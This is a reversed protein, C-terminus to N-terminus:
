PTNRLVIDQRSVLTALWGKRYIPLHDARTPKTPCKEPTFFLIRDRTSNLGDMIGWRNWIHTPYSLFGCVSIQFM